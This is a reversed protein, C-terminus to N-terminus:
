SYQKVLEKYKEYWKEWENEPIEKTEDNIVNSLHMLCVQWGALDKPTHDTLKNIYEKMILETEDKTPIVEFRVTDTGWEFEIVSGDQFDTIKMEIIKGSEDNFYFLIKGDKRLDVIELHGMWKKLHENNTISDWVKEAPQKFLREYQAIFKDDYKTITAIM